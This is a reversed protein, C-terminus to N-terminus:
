RRRQFATDREINMIRQWQGSENIADKICYHVGAIVAIVFAILALFLASEMAGM